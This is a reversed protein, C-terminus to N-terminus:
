RQAIIRSLTHISKLSELPLSQFLNGSIDISILSHTMFSHFFFIEILLKGSHFHKWVLRFSKESIDYLRNNILKLTELRFGQFSDDDLHQIMTHTIELHKVTGLLIEINTLIFSFNNRCKWVQMFM